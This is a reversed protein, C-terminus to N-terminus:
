DALNAGTRAPGRFVGAALRTTNALRTAANAAISDAGCPGDLGDVLHEARKKRGEFSELNGRLAEQEM